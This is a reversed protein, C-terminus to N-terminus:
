QQVTQAPQNSQSSELVFPIITLNDASWGIWECINKFQRIISNQYSKINTKQFQNFATVMEEARNNFGGGQNYELLIAPIQHATIIDQKVLFSLNNYTDADLNDIKDITPLSDAEAAFLNMIGGNNAAGVFNLKINLDIEDMEESSTPSYPHKIIYKGGIGNDILSKNSIIIQKESQISDLAAVYDPLPYFQQGNTAEPKYEKYYFIQEAQNLQDETLEPLNSVIKVSDKGWFSPNFKPLSYTNERGTNLTNDWNNSIVYYDIRNDENPEGCRVQTFPIHYIYKIYGDYGWVFKLAYGGFTAFDWAIKKLIDNVTEGEDNIALLTKKLNSNLESINFGEGFIMMSKRQIAAGNTPSDLVLRALLQPYLNKNDFRTSDGSFPLYKNERRTYGAGNIIPLGMGAESSFNLPKSVTLKKTGIANNAKRSTKTTNQKNLTM